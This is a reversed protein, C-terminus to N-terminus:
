RVKILLGCGSGVTIRATKGKIVENSTAYQYSPEITANELPFKANEITVGSLTGNIAALSFYPYSDDVEASASVASGQLDTVSKLYGILSMESYDDAIMATCGNEALLLLMYVNVLTHDLRQGVAGLILFDKFGRKMAEKVAFVTDTDDKERPLVITEIDTEPKEHSDFDGIILDPMVRLKEANNLGSDCVIFHDNERLYEKIVGPADIMAGGIIVCRSGIVMKYKRVSQLKQM